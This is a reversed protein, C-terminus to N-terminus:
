DSTEIVKAMLLMEKARFAGFSEYSSQAEGLGWWALM